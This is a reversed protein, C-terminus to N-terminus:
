KNLKDEITKLRAQLDANIQQQEVVQQKLQKMEAQDNESAEIKTNLEKIANISAVLISHMNFSLFGDEDVQVADPFLPQVEQAIFGSFETDLVEQEFKRDGNNKYHYRIPQLQMIENLGKTYNGDVTKLRSDSVVTWTTSGPKRGENLSLELQGGPTATGIGVDGASTIRMREVLTVSNNTKLVLYGPSVGTTANAKRGELSAFNRSATAADDIMGGLTISGGIDINQPNNTRVLLNGDTATGPIANEDTVDLRTQPSSTGIGVNVSATAGNIGNISGLVLSNSTAVEANAGIATANTLNGSAVNAFSGIVTNFNGTDNVTLSNRGFATNNSGTSNTGMTFSGFAANGTGSTNSILTSSGIAVNNNGVNNNYFSQTGIAINNSGSSNLYSASFGIAINGFGTSNSYMAASGLACNNNGTTNSRMSVIGIATNQIGTLNDELSFCGISVNGTGTTNSFLANTGFASNTAGTTNNFLANYGFASNSSGTTTNTLARFGLASNQIGTTNNELASYGFASLGSSTTSSNLSFIGFACNFQGTTNSYLAANGYAANSGGTTNSGLAINGFASNLGGTTNFELAGMGFASNNNGTSNATLTNRGFASNFFGTTNSFLTGFGAATNGQGTTNFLMSNRGLAVNQQGTTNFGLANSGFATNEVGTSLPNLANTGFSTSNFNLLGARLNGRRFIVDANNITGIFHTTANIGSNGTISWGSTQNNGVSIWDSSVNDWYYFGISKPNGSFTTATTLYVMMGQQAATPNAAPFADMKPILLGDTNSPTAQNSSRVDLQADPLTTNIGVQSFCWNAMLLFGTLLLKAKMNVTKRSLIAVIM